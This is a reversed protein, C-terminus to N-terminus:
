QDGGQKKKKIVGTSQGKMFAGYSECGTMDQDGGKM